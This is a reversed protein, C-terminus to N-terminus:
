RRQEQAVRKLEAKTNLGHVVTNLQDVAVLTQDLTGARGELVDIKRSLADLLDYLRQNDERYLGVMEGMRQIRDLLEPRGSQMKEYVKSADAAESASQQALRAFEGLEDAARRGEARVDDLVKSGIEAVRAIQELRESHLGIASEVRTSLEDMRQRCQELAAETELQFKAVLKAPDVDDEVDDMGDFDLEPSAPPTAPPPPLSVSAEPSLTKRKRPM